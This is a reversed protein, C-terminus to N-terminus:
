QWGTIWLAKTAGTYDISAGSSNLITVSTLVCNFTVAEGSELYGDSTARTCTASNLRFYIRGGGGNRIENASTGTTVSFTASATDAIASGSGITFHTPGGGYMVPTDTLVGRSQGMLLAVGVVAAIGALWGPLRYRNM